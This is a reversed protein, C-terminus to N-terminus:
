PAQQFAEHSLWTASCYAISAFNLLTLLLYFLYDWPQFVRLSRVPERAGAPYAQRESSEVRSPIGAQSGPAASAGVVASPGSSVQRTATRDSNTVQPSIM